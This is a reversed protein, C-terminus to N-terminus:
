LVILDSKTLETWDMLDFDNMEFMDGESSPKNDNYYVKYRFIMTQKRTGNLDLIILMPNELKVGNIQM